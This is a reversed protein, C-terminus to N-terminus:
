TNLLRCESLIIVMQSVLQDQIKMWGDGEGHECGDVGLEGHAVFRDRPIKVDALQSEGFQAPWAERGVEHHLFVIDLNVEEFEFCKVGCFVVTLYIDPCIINVRKVLGEYVPLDANMGISRELGFGPTLPFEGDEIRIVVQERKTLGNLSNLSSISAEPCYRWSYNPNLLLQM